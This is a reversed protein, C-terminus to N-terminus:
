AQRLRRRWQTVGLMGAGLAILAWTGPEPVAANAENFTTAITLNDINLGSYANAANGGQRLLFSDIPGSTGALIGNSVIGDDPHNFFLEMWGSTPDFSVVIRYVTGFTFPPASSMSAGDNSINQGAGLRYTNPDGVAPARLFLRAVETVGSRFSAFYASGTPLSTGTFSIDMGYFLLSATAGFPVAIDEMAASGADMGTVQGNIVQVPNSGASSVPTWVSGSVADLDGSIYDFPEHFIVTGSSSGVFFCLSAALAAVAAVVEKM